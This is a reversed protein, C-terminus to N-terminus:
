IRPKSTAFRQDPKTTLAKEPSWGLNLLRKTLTNPSIGITMAWDTLVRRQGDFEIVHNTRKNRAQVAQSAWKCNGPEYGRDNDIRELTLKPPCEGMDELFSEFTMWRECVTIGRAGYMEYEFPRPHLCRNLMNRWSIRTRGNLKARKDIARVREPNAARWKATRAKEMAAFGDPDAALCRARYATVIAKAKDRNKSRWERFYEADCPRCRKQGKNFDGIPKVSKCRSCHRESM